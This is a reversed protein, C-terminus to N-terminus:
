NQISIKVNYKALGTYQKIQVEYKEGKKLEVTTEEYGSYLHVLEERKKSLLLFRYAYNVDDIEFKFKYTGTKPAIYSYTDVQDIYRIKGKITNGTISKMDNPVGIRITYQPLEQYQTVLIKYQMDKVLECTYGKNSYDTNVIEKEKEDYMYFKYNKNVDDIDFDFRYVGSKPAIYQYENEQDIYRIEGKIVNGEVNKIGDPSNIVITYEVEEYNENEESEVYLTYEQGGELMVTTGAPDSSTYYQRTLEQETSDTICFMYNKRVSDIDFDFRYIGTQQPVFLETRSDNGILTGNLVNGDFVTKVEKNEPEESEEPLNDEDLNNEDEDFVDEDGESDTNLPIEDEDNNEKETTIKEATEAREPHVIGNWINGIEISFITSGTLIIVAVIIGFGGFVKFAPYSNFFEKIKNM